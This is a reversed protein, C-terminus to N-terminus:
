SRDEVEERSEEYLEAYLEDIRLRVRDGPEISVTRPFRKSLEDVDGHIAVEGDILLTLSASRPLPITPLIHTAIITKLGRRIREVIMEVIKRCTLPDLNAFPEDLITLEPSGMFAIALLVKKAMGASLARCRKGLYDIGLFRCLELVESWPIGEDDAFSRLVEEVTALPPLRAGDLLFSVKGRLAEVNKYPEIGFVKAYGKSPKRVGALINILTSKGSGNPGVLLHLPKEIDLSVGKLAVTAGFRKVLNRVEVYPM